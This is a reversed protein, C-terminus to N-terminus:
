FFGPAKAGGAGKDKPYTPYRKELTATDVWAEDTATTARNIDYKQVARIYGGGSYSQGPAPSAPIQYTSSLAQGGVPSIARLIAGLKRGNAGRTLRALESWTRRNYDTTNGQGGNSIPAYPQKFFGDWLGSWQAM